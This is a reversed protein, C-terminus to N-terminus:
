TLTVYHWSGGNRYYVRGDATDLVPGIGDAPNTFDSDTPIGAKQLCQFLSGTTLSTGIGNINFIRKVVQIGSSTASLAISGDPRLNVSVFGNMTISKNADVHISALSVNPNTNNGAGPWIINGSADILVNLGTQINTDTGLDSFNQVDLNGGFIQTRTAGSAINALVAGGTYDYAFCHYLNNHDGYINRFGNTCRALNGMEITIDDFYNGQVQGGAQVFDVGINPHDLRISRLTNANCYTGGAGVDIVIGRNPNLCFMDEFWCFEIGSSVTSTLSIFDWLNQPSGQENFNGGLAKAFSTSPPVSIAYGTYGNPVNIQANLDFELITGSGLPIGSFSNPLNYTGAQVYVGTGGKVAEVIGKSASTAGTSGIGLSAGYATIIDANVMLEGINSGIGGDRVYSNGSADVWVVCGPPQIGTWQGLTTNPTSSPMALVTRDIGGMLAAGAGGAAAVMAARRLLNRRTYSTSENM